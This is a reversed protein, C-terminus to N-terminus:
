RQRQNMKDNGSRWYYHGGRVNSTHSQNIDTVIVIPKTQASVHNTNKNKERMSEFRASSRNCYEM